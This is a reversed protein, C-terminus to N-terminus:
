SLRYLRQTVSLTDSSSIGMFLLLNWEEGFRGSGGQSRRLNRRSSINRGQRPTSNILCKSAENTVLTITIAAVSGIGCTDEHNACPKPM